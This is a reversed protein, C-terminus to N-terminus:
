SNSPSIRGNCVEDFVSTWLFSDMFRVNGDKEVMTGTPKWKISEAISSEDASDQSAPPEASDHLRPSDTKPTSPEM